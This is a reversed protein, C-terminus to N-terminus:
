DPIQPIPDSTAPTSLEAPAVSGMKRIGVGTIAGPSERQRAIRARSSTSVRGTPKLPSSCLSAVVRFQHVPDHAPSPGAIRGLAFEFLTALTGRTRALDAPM